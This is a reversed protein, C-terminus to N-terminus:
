YGTIKPNNVTYNEKNKLKRIVEYSLLIMLIFVILPLLVLIWSITTYGQNCLFNLFWTWIAVFFVKVLLSLTGFNNFAMSILAIISLILYLMAPVCIAHKNNSNVM